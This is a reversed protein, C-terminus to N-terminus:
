LHEAKVLLGVLAEVVILLAVQSRAEGMRIRVADHFAGHGARVWLRLCGSAWVAAALSTQRM